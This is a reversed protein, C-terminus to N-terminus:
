ILKSANMLRRSQRVPTAVKAGREKTSQKSYFMNLLCAYDLSLVIPAADKVKSSFQVKEWPMTGLSVFHQTISQVTHLEMEFSMQM